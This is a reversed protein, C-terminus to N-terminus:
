ELGAGRFDENGGTLRVGALGGDLGEVGEGVESGARLGDGDGGVGGLGGADLVEDGFHLLVRGADVYEEGVRAGGPARGEVVVGILREGLHHVQVDLGDEGGNLL